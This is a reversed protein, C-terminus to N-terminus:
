EVVSKRDVALSVFGLLFGGLLRRGQGSLEVLGVERVSTAGLARLLPWLGGLAFVILSRNVFSSFPYDALKALVPHLAAAAQTLQYLWPALLAGGLFVLAIYLALSRILRM